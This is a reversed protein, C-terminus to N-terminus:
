HKCFNITINGIVSATDSLSYLKVSAPAISGARLVHSYSKGGNPVIFDNIQGTSSNTWQVRVPADGDNFVTIENFNETTGAAFLTSIDVATGVGAVNAESLLIGRVLENCYNPENCNM